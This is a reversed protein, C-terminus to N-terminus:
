PAFQLGLATGLFKAMQGRTVVADPCFMPPSVNCGSTIGAAALAEIFQFFPHNTPVDTFTATAPAPSVQLVYGVRLSGFQISPDHPSLLINVSYANNNNDIVLPPSFVVTRDVCGPAEANTSFPGVKSTLGAMRPQIFVFSQFLESTSTDCFVAEMETVLAGEPLNLPARLTNVGTANTRSITQGIAVGPNIQFTGTSDTPSFSWPSLAVFTKAVTGYTREGSAETSGQARATDPAGLFMVALLLGAANAHIVRM